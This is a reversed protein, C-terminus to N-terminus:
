RCPLVVPLPAAADEQLPVRGRPPGLHHAHDATVVRLVAAIAALHPLHVVGQHHYPVTVGLTEELLRLTRGPGGPVVLPLRVHILGVVNGPLHPRPDRPHEDESGFAVGLAPVEAGTGIQPEAEVALAVDPLLARLEGEITAATTTTVERVIM